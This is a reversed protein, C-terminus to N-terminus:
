PAAAAGKARLWPLGVRDIADLVVNAAGSTQASGDLVSWWRDEGFALSGLRAVRNEQSRVNPNPKDSSGREAAVRGWAAKDAIALNVTFRVEEGSNWRSSQFGIQLWHTDDPLLYTAGSGKLGRARLAPAIEDRLM